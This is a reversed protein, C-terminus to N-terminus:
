ARKHVIELGVKVQKIRGLIEIELYALRKHRDIRKILGTQNMLPGNLIIVKDGEMIGESMEVVREPAQAFANIFVIEQDTLPLFTDDNGLLRTFTPVKRLATALEEPHKTTVFVYGPLLNERRKLWQGRVRKMVEYQPSFCEEILRGDVFKDFLALARNEQGSTVQVVYWM